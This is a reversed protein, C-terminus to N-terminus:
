SRFVRQAYLSLKSNSDFRKIIGSRILNKSFSRIFAPRIGRIKFQSVRPLDRSNFLRNPIKGEAVRKFHAKLRNLEERNAIIQYFKQKHHIKNWNFSYPINQHVFHKQKLEM